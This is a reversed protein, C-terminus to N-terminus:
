LRIFRGDVKLFTFSFSSHVLFMFSLFFLRVQSTLYGQGTLLSFIDTFFHGIGETM